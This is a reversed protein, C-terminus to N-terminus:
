NLDLKKLIELKTKFDIPNNRLLNMGLQQVNPMLTMVENRVKENNLLDLIVDANPFLENNLYNTINQALYNAVVNDSLLKDKSANKSIIKQYENIGLEGKKFVFEIYLNLIQDNSFDTINDFIEHLKSQSKGNYHNLLVKIRNELLFDKFAM